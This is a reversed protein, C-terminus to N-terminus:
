MRVEDVMFKFIVAPDGGSELFKRSDFPRGALEERVGKAFRFRLRMEQNRQIEPGVSVDNSNYTSVDYSVVYYESGEPPPTIRRVRARRLKKEEAMKALGPRVNANWWGFAAPSMQVRLIGGARRAVDAADPVVDLYERVFNNILREQVYEDPLSELGVPRGIRNRSLEDPQFVYPQIDLKRSADFLLGGFYVAACSLGVVAFASLFFILRKM